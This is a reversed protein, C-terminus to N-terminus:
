RHTDLWSRRLEAARERATARARSTAEAQSQAYDPPDDEMTIVEVLEQRVSRAPGPDWYQMDVDMAHPHMSIAAPNSAYLPLMYPQAGPLQALQRFTYMSRLTDEEIGYNLSANDQNRISSGASSPAMNNLQYPGLGATAEVFLQFDADNEFASEDWYQRHQASSPSDLSQRPSVLSEADQWRASRRRPESWARQSQEQHDHLLAQRRQVASDRYPIWRTQPTPDRSSSPRRGREYQSSTDYGGSESTGYSGEDPLSVHYTSGHHTRPRDSTMSVSIPSVASRPSDSSHRYQM